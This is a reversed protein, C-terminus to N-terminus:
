SSFAMACGVWFGIRQDGDGGGGGGIGWGPLEGVCRVEGLKVVVV